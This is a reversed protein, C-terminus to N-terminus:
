DDDDEDDVPASGNKQAAQAHINISRPDYNRDYGRGDRAMHM